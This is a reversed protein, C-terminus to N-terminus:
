LIALDWMDGAEHLMNFWFEMDENRTSSSSRTLSLDTDLAGLDMMRTLDTSSWFNDDIVAASTVSEEKVLEHGDSTIAGNDAPSSVAASDTVTVTSCTM